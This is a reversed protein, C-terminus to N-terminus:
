SDAPLPATALRIAERAALVDARTIGRAEGDYFTLDRDVLRRLAKLLMPAAAILAHDADLEAGTAANDSGLFGCGMDDAHLITHVAYRGPDPNAPRLSYGYWAWPGPTHASM